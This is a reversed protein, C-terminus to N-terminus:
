VFLFLLESCKIQKSYLNDLRNPTYITASSVKDDLTVKLLLSPSKRKMKYLKRGLIIFGMVAAAVSFSWVPGARFMCYKLVEFPVKWWVVKRKEGVGSGSEANVKTEQIQLNKKEELHEDGEELKVIKSDSQDIDGFKASFKSLDKSQPQNEDFEEFALEIKSDSGRIESDHSELGELKQIRSRSEEDDTQTQLFEALGSETKSDFENFKREDSRDSGSDSWFEGSDVRGYRNESSPDIWSPNDSEISGEEENLDREAVAKARRGQNELSFYDSKIITESDSEGEIGGFHNSKEGSFEVATLASKADSDHLLVEWDHFEAGVAGEMAVLM